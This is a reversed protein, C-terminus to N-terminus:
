GSTKGPGLGLRDLNRLTEPALAKLLQRAGMGALIDGANPNALLKKTMEEQRAMQDIALLDNLYKDKVNTM